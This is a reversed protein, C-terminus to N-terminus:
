RVPIYEKQSKGTLHFRLANAIHFASYYMYGWKKVRRASVSVYLGTHYRVQGFHAIRKALDLDEATVLRTDFGKAKEFADRRLAMNSGVPNHLGACSCAFLCSDMVFQSMAREISSADSFYVPGYAMAAKPNSEFFAAISQVWHAPLQADADTFAIIDGKAARAGAQREWAASRRKERVVRAGYSKAIEVTRDTSYGDGVIIEFEHTTKQQRLTELAKGIYDEENLAAIVVSVLMLINSLICIFIL